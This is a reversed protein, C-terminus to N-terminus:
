ESLTIDRVKVYDIEQERPQEPQSTQKVYEEFAICVASLSSNVIEEGTTKSYEINCNDKIAKELLRFDITGTYSLRSISDYNIQGDHHEKGDTITTTQSTDPKPEKELAALESELKYFKTRLDDFLM